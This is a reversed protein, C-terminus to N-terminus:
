RILTVNGKKIWKEGGICLIEAYFGYVDATAAKGNYQGDWSTLISNTEFVKEGWRNYVIILLEEIADGRATWTDNKGDGNPSFASPIFLYPEQCFVPKIVQVWVSDEAPCGVSDVATVYFWTSEQPSSSPDSATPNSVLDAPTWSFSLGGGPRALLQVTEGPAIIDPDASAEVVPNSVNVRVSDRIICSNETQITFPIYQSTLPRILLNETTVTDNSATLWFIMFPEDSEIDLSIELSDNQCIFYPRTFYSIGPAPVEINFNLTDTCVDEKVAIVLISYTGPSEYVHQVENGSAFTDDGFNWTFLVSDALSEAKFMFPTGSCIGQSLIEATVGLTDQCTVVEVLVSDTVLCGTQPDSVQVIYWTSQQPTAATIASQPESISSPPTWVYQAGTIDITSLTTSQGQVIRAPSAVAMAEPSSLISINVVGQYTCGEASSAIYSVIQSSDLRLTVSGGARIITDGPALIWKVTAINGNNAQLSITFEDASCAVIDEATIILNDETIHITKVFTDACTAGPNLILSVQYIGYDTYTHVPNKEESTNGDGFNWNYISGGRSRDTFQITKNNCSTDPASFNADVSPACDAVNFQFDRRTESLLVGDRYEEVCVGVVFQGIRGPIATLIGSVADISLPQPGSLQDTLSYPPRWRIEDYPPFELLFSITPASPSLGDYPTCLKYVLSDGDSDTASHDFVLPKNACIAVPPFNKFVPNSNPRPLSPPIFASYTAGSNEPTDTQDDWANLITANRCCRQYALTYGSENPPLIVSARYQVREVCVNPPAVLCPDTLEIPLTDWPPRPIGIRRIFINNGDFINILAPSDFLPVGLFCDRYANLTLIFTSDNVRSYNLEGGVIHTANVNFKAFLLLTGILITRLM